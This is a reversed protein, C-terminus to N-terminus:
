FLKKSDLLLTVPGQNHIEVLMDAGFRGTQVPLAYRERLIKVFAEYLPTALDPTAAGTFSPRRGKRCDGYLTFQSIVLCAGQVDSVSLNMKGSEDEFIRLGAVKEALYEADTLDDEPGVGLLVVSGIGIERREAGNITVAAQTVRQVVARM